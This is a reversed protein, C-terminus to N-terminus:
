DFGYPSWGKLLPELAARTPEPPDPVLLPGLLPDIPVAHEAAWDLWENTGAGM